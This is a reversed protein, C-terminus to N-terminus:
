KVLRKGGKGVVIGRYSRPAPTGSLTYASSTHQLPIDAKNMTSIGTAPDIVLRYSQYNMDTEGLADTTVLIGYGGIVNADSTIAVPYHMFRDYSEFADSFQPFLDALLKPKTEGAKWIVGRTYGMEDMCAGVCTGDNAISNPYVNNTEPDFYLIEPTESEFIEGTELNMRVMYEPTPMGEEAAEKQAVIALWKGDASIGLCEFKLYPKGSGWRPEWIDKSIVDYKYSGDQQRRWIIAPRSSMWDQLYGAIVSGDASIYQANAGDNAIGCEESSPYPLVIREGNKWLCPTPLWMSDLLAGVIMSGDPTTAFAVSLDNDIISIKGTNDFKAANTTVMDDQGLIGVAIGDDTCARFDCNAYDGENEIVNNSQTDWMFGCYTSVNLGTIYRSNASMGLAELNYWDSVPSTTLEQASGAIAGILMMASIISKKM